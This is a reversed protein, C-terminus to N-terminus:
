PQFWDFTNISCHEGLDPVAYRHSFTRIRHENKPSIAHEYARDVADGFLMTFENYYGILFALSFGHQFWIMIGWTASQGELNVYEVVEIRNAQIPISAMPDIPMVFSIMDFISSLAFAGEALRPATYEENLSDAFQNIAQAEKNIWAVRIESRAYGVALCMGQRQAVKEFTFLFAPCFGLDTNTIGVGLEEREANRALAGVNEVPFSFAQSLVTLVSENANSM